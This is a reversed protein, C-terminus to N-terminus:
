YQRRVRPKSCIVSHPEPGPFWETYSFRSSGFAFSESSAFGSPDNFPSQESIPSKITRLAGLTTLSFLRKRMPMHLM